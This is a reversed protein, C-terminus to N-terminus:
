EAIEELIQGEGESNLRKLIGFKVMLRSAQFAFPGFIIQQALRQAAEASHQEQTYQKALAPALNM